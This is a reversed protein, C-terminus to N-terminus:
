TIKADFEGTASIRAIIDGMRDVAYGKIMGITKQFEKSNIIELLPQLLESVFLREPIVLDYHELFLPIFDLELAEAAAAIGLGCDVRGSSVAAAVSLHTYEEMEYGRIKRASIGALGFHYDLLVRTGSGAQRNIFRVEPDSLDVLAKIGKPNGKRVILGQQRSLFGVVLIGTDKIYQRIYSINYEGSTPDLLHSGALHAHRKSVAILGGLSGVNSSVLRRNHDDLFQKLIDLTMDHSGVAFITRGVDVNEHLLNINVQEGVQLGQSGRPIVVIGDAKSLSTIMGAGRPLSAALLEGDIKGVVVRLYDDDGAPSTVKSIMRAQLTSEIRCKLGLWQKILPKVFIEATLAASVPYGPVGIIPIASKSKDEFGASYVLGLIVPHGPRVAIGHVLLEGLSSIVKESYDESGASSGAILLILDHDEAAQKVSQVIDDYRDPQIEFRTAEAGWEEVQAALVMSNFEIIEGAVVPEGIPILESGTPIVAIRPKRSIAIQKNGSSAIAGLDVPRLRQGATLVLETAVIDEGLIRVNKWPPVASRIRIFAPHRSSDINQQDDKLREVNEIPIVADAWVPLPEGTDLYMSYGDQFVKSRTPTMNPIVKPDTMSAGVTDGARVAFGDMASSHYHPSSLKAFVAEAVVRGVLHESLPINEVGLLGDLGIKELAAQFRQIAESLPIDELYVTM